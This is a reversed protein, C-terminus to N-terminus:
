VHCADEGSLDIKGVRGEALFSKGFFDKQNM